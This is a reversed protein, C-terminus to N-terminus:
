DDASFPEIMTIRAVSVGSSGVLAVTEGLTRADAEAAHTAAALIPAAVEEEGEGGAVTVDGPGPSPFSRRDYRKLHDGVLAHGREEVGRRLCGLLRDQVRQECGASHRSPMVACPSM